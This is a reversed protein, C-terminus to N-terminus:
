RGNTTPFRCPFPRSSRGPRDSPGERRSLATIGCEGEYVEIPRGNRWLVWVHYQRDWRYGSFDAAPPTDYSNRRGKPLRTAPWNRRGASTCCRRGARTSSSCPSWCSRVSQRDCVGVTRDARGHRRRRRRRDRHGAGPRVGAGAPASSAAATAHPFGAAPQVADPRRQVGDAPGRVQRGAHGPRRRASVGAGRRTRPPSLRPRGGAGAPVRYGSQGGARGLSHATGRRASRSMRELSAVGGIPYLTIDRTRIGFSRAMLAHGLEHLLVCGFVVGVLVTMGVANFWGDGMESFLVLAPLLLFTPHLYLPIGFAKGLRWSRFM